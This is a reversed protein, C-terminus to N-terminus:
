VTQGRMAMDRLRRVRDGIPPHTSFLSVFQSGGEHAAQPGAVPLPNVIYMHAMAETSAAARMPRARVSSELKELAGALSLPDRIIRAGVSDAAYERTRSIAFRVLSAALPMILWVVLLAVLGIIGAMGGDRDRRGGGLLMGWMAMSGLFTIVAAMVAVVSMTLMDRNKIHAIEHAIVGRLEQESLIRQIGTTVAVVAHRPNRGTAFANASDNAIVCVKPKPLNARQAVDEVMRHLRPEDKESVQKAGSMALALKDSFWYAVFNMVLALALGVVLLPVVGGTAAGIAGATGVVLASMVIMLSFTKLWSTGV